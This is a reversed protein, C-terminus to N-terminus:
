RQANESEPDRTAMLKNNASGPPRPNKRSLLLAAASRCKWGLTRKRCRAKVFSARLKTSSRLARACPSQQLTELRLILGAENEGKAFRPLHQTIQGRSIGPILQLEKIILLGFMRPQRETVPESSPLPWQHWLKQTQGAAPNKPRVPARINAAAFKPKSGCPFFWNIPM